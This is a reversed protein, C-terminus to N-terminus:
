HIIRKTTKKFHITNKVTDYTSNLLFLNTLDICTLYHDQM